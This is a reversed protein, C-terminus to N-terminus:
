PKSVVQNLWLRPRGDGGPWTNTAVFVDLDGDRDLDAVAASSSNSSALRLGSDVFSAKGDNLWIRPTSQWSGTFV